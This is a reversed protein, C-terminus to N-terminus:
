GENMDLEKAEFFSKRAEHGSVGVIPHKGFYTSFNGTGSKNAAALFFDKRNKYLQWAGLIPWRAESVLKPAGKPFSPQWTAKVFIALLPVVLLAITTPWNQYWGAQEQDPLLNPTSANAM